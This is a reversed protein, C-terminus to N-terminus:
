LRQVLVDEREVIERLVQQVGILQEFTQQSDRGTTQPVIGVYEAIPAPVVVVRTRHVEAEAHPLAVGIDRQDWQGSTTTRIPTLCSLAAYDCDPLPRHPSRRRERARPASRRSSRSTATASCSWSRSPRNRPTQRVTRPCRHVPRRPVPPH